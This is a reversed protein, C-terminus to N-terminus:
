TVVTHPVPIRLVPTGVFMWECLRASYFSSFTGEDTVVADCGSGPATGRKLVEESSQAQVVYKIQPGYADEYM